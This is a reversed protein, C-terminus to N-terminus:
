FALALNSFMPNTSFVHSFTKVLLNAECSTRAKIFMAEPVSILFIPTSYLFSLSFSLKGGSLSADLNFYFNSVQNKTSCALKLIDLDCFVIRM